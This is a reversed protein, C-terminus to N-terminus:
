QTKFLTENIHETMMAKALESNRTEIASAIKRHYEAGTSGLLTVNERLLSLYTEYLVDYVKTIIENRTAEAILRHFEMDYETIEGRDTAREMKDTADYMMRVMGADARSAAIGASEVEVIRRFEFVDIRGPNSLTLFPMISNIQQDGSINRVFTGKGQVSQILGLSALRQLAARVSVRSVGLEDCLAHESPIKDGPKWEGSIISKRLRIFVSDSVSIKKHNGDM